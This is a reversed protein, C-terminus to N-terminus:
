KFVILFGMVPPTKISHKLLLFLCEIVEANKKLGGVKKGGLKKPL